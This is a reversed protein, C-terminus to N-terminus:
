RLTHRKRSKMLTEYPAEGFRRRYAAAFRGLHTYGWSMAAESVNGDVSANLLAQRIKDLRMDRLLQMPSLGYQVQCMRSLSRPSTGSHRAIDDLALDEGLHAQMFERARQLRLPVEPSEDGLLHERLSISQACLLHRMLAEEALRAKLRGQPSPHAFQECFYRLLASWQAGDSSDLAIQREFKLAQRPTAGTLGGYEAGLRALPVKLIIQAAGAEWVLRHPVGSPMILGSAGGVTWAGEECEVSVSGSLPLQVLLFDGRPRTEEVVVAEGYELTWLSLAEAEVGQLRAALTSGRPELVHDNLLEAIRSRVEEVDQSALLVHRELLAQTWETITHAM